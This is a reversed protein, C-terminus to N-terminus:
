KKKRPDKESGWYWKARPKKKREKGLMPSPTGKRVGGRGTAGGGQKAKLAAQAHKAEDRCRYKWKGDQWFASMRKTCVPCKKM